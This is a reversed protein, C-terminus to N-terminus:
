ISINKCKKNKQIHILYSQANKYVDLLVNSYNKVSVYVGFCHFKICM